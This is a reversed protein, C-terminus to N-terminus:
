FPNGIMTFGAWYFPHTLDQQPLNALAPPLAITFNSSILRDGTQSVEGRLMAMQAQSLAEAKIPSRKLHQYFESMLGVTGADNISWLSGLVSRVGIQMALGAFGFEADKDGLATKCSSLVLLDVQPSDLSLQTVKDLLLSRDSFQIYSKDPSGPLFESHTALHVIDFKGQQHEEILKDITFERDLIKEGPFLAPTISDLEVAVGPLDPKNTFKSAGMALVRRNDRERYDIDTLNFAPIRTLNYKEIAFKEGDHLAAFPLSRLKPGTCLLITDIQEAQLYQEVPAFIWQYLLKAPPLYKTSQRDAIANLFLDITSDLTKEDASRIEEMVVRNSPTILLLKLFKPQPIAWIVAPKLGTQGEIRDLQAAIEPASRDYNAFNRQFHAEYDREWKAEIKNIEEGLQFTDISESQSNVTQNNFITIAVFLLISWFWATKAFLKATKFKLKEFM